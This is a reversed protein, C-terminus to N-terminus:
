ARYMSRMRGSRNEIVSYRYGWILLLVSAYGWVMSRLHMCQLIYMSVYVHTCLLTYIYMCTYAYVYICGRPHTCGCWCVAYQHIHKYASICRMAYICAYYLECLSTRWVLFLISAICLISAIFAYGWMHWRHQTCRRLVTWTSVRAVGICFISAISACRWHTLPTRCADAYHTHVTNHSCRRLVWSQDHYRMCACRTVSATSARARFIHM